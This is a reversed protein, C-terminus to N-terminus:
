PLLGGFSGGPGGTPSPRTSRPPQQYLGPWFQRDADRSSYGGPSRYRWRPKRMASTGDALYTPFCGHRRGASQGGAMDLSPRSGRRRDPNTRSKDARGDAVSRACRLEAFHSRGCRGTCQLTSRRLHGLFAAAKPLEATCDASSRPADWSRVSVTSGGECRPATARPSTSRSTRAQPTRTRTGTQTRRAGAPWPSSSEQSQCTPRIATVRRYNGGSRQPVHAM